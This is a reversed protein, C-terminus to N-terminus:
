RQAVQVAAVKAFVERSSAHCSAGHPFGHLHSQQVQLRQFMLRSEGQRCQQHEWWQGATFRTPFMVGQVGCASFAIPRSQCLM